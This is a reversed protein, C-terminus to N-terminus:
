NGAERWTYFIPSIVLHITLNTRCTPSAPTKSHNLAQRNQQKWAFPYFPLIRSRPSLGKGRELSYIESQFTSRQAIRWWLEEASRLESPSLVPRSNGEGKKRANNAFRQIWATIRLLHNYSSVRELLPVDCKVVPLLTQQVDREESPVPHEDFSVKINWNEETEKLWRPGEMWLDNEMLEAPFMGRSACDAPNDIGKVHRWCAVPIAESIEAVRNGVFALFRRPNGQLWGLTVRSDTWAFANSFPVELIKAVHHLLKSVIVASCLELRPISLRKIPAVKTKAMVLAVYINNKYDVARLYIIGSYAAESADCFGHLQVGKISVDKPFYPRALCFDKLLPLEKHWKKWASEIKKLVPEDWTLNHEWLRQLMIKTLITTPSCWGLVDFLRAINSVLVQKTLPESVESSSIVPRFCDPVVNWEVGLVKTYEDQHHIEQRM